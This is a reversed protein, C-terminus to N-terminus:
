LNVVLTVLVGGAIMYLLCAPATARLVESERGAIGVTAGGAIINHPCVINGIAAGFGQAALLRVPPLDLQAATEAQFETFLINSATASGTVFTGLVGVAPAVLPWLPGASAAAGALAAVLGGHVMLRSLGLMAVLAVAVPVLRRLAALAACGLETTSRRQATGGLLFALMLMTGPHYLPQVGGGFMGLLTWRWGVGSLIERPGPLLRTVLVLALLFLYPACARALTVRHAASPEFDRRPQSRSLLYAFVTGGILAGGVTPLEPGAVTAFLVYPVFFCTGATLAWLWDRRTPAAPAALRVLFALLIWGLAAHLIATAHSLKLAPLLTAELQPQLPTGVAGFSVGAAHGILALTVARVPPVGLGVLLPAALAVPTGFGAVGEMFLGFFWAILLVLPRPNVTLDALRAHIADFAGTRLQLEYICLAPFIIWLITATTSVAEALAGALTVAPGLERLTAADPILNTAIVAAAAILGVLGARAASWRLGLMVALVLGIPLAALAAPM